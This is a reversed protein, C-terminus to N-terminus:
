MGMFWPFSIILPNKINKLHSFPLLDKWSEQNPSWIGSRRPLELINQFNHKFALSLVCMKKREERGKRLTAGM